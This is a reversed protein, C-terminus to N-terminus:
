EDCFVIVLIYYLNLFMPVAKAQSILWVISTRYPLCGRRLFFAEMLIELIIKIPIDVM